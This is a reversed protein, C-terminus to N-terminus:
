KTNRDIEELRSIAENLEVLAIAGQGVLARILGSGEQNLEKFAKRIDQSANRADVLAAKWESKGVQAPTSM